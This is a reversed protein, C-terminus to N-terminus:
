DSESLVKMLPRDLDKMFTRTMDLSERHGHRETTNTRIFAWGYRQQQLRDLAMWAQQKVYNAETRDGSAFWYTIAERHDSKEAVVLRAPVDRGAYPMDTYAKRVIEWGAAPYCLEPRHAFGRRGYKRYVILLQVHRGTGSHTYDRLLISDAALAKRIGPSLHIDQGKWDGIQMPLDELRANFDARPQWQSALSSLCAAGMTLLAVIMYNQTHRAMGYGLQDPVPDPDRGLVPDPEVM